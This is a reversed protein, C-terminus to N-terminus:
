RRYRDGDIQERVAQDIRRLDAEDSPGGGPAHVLVAYALEALDEPNLCLRWEGVFPGLAAIAREIDAASPTDNDVALLIAKM